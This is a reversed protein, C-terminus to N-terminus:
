GRTHAPPQTLRRNKEPLLILVFCFIGLVPYAVAVIREFGALATLAAILWVVPGINRVWPKIMETLAQLVAILTTIVALYLVAAALYYGEMGYEQLLIVMPLAEEELEPHSILTFNGLLLIGTIVGGAWAATRCRGRKRCQVGARCLIGASLMVNMGAYGIAQFVALIIDATSLSKEIRAAAPLRLCLLYTLLLLPLLIKGLWGLVGLSHRSLFLCVTLSFFMGTWRIHMLPITLAALEGAAATMGGATAALLLFTIGQSIKQLKGQRFLGAMGSTGKKMVRLMLMTMMIGALLILERSFAGYRSFFHMQERGSAFGAGIVAGLICHIIRIQGM